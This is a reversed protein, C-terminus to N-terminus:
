GGELLEFFDIVHIVELLFGKALPFIFYQFCGHLFQVQLSFCRVGLLFIWSKVSQEFIIKIKLHLNLILKFLCRNFHHFLLFFLNFLFLLFGFVFFFFYFLLLLLLLFVYVIIFINYFLFGFIYFFFIVLLFNLLFVLRGEVIGSIWMLILLIFFHTVLLNELFLDLFFLLHHLQQFLSFFLRFLLLFFGM